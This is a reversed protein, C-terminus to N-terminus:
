WSGGGGGGGGAGAGGGGGGSSSSSPATFTSATASSLAPAMTVFHYDASSRSTASGPIHTAADVSKKWHDLEGLAVAWATYHRLLGMEAAAEAHRAESAAIFRRFSEIQIWRASGQPTRIPLEWSRILAALSAGALLAGVACLVVWVPGFRNALGGGVAALVLGVLAGLVGFVQASSRRQHGRQDWLGSAERWEELETALGEWAAAFGSDYTGLEIRNVGGAFIARLRGAVAPDPEAPGRSLVFDDHNEELRVEDRIACEILWAIQHESNVGEAHIIGGAAASLGQPSAFEISAMEALREHDVLEVGAVDGSLPGFAADAAGGSWVQERGLYRIRRSAVAGAVLAAAVAALGPALWGSGPDEAPGQPAMVTPAETVLATALTGEVTVAEGAELGDVSVILHGPEIQTVECGGQAGSSGRHCAIETFEHGATVHIEAHNIPVTWELGIANWSLRDGEVLTEIAYSLEYRHRNSITVDPDGVQWLVGGLEPMAMFGDPATSSSITVPTRWDVDPVDRFIGHRQNPGFDYDIVEVIQARGDDAIAAQLWYDGIRETDGIAAGVSAAVAVAAAGLGLLFVDLRRRTSHKM